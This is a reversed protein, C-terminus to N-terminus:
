RTLRNFFIRVIGIIVVYASTSALYYPKILSVDILAIFAPILLFLAIFGYHIIEQVANKLFDFAGGVIFDAFQRAGYAMIAIFAAAYFLEQM